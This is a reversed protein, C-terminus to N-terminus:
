RKGSKEEVRVGKVSDNKSYKTFDTTNVDDISSDDFILIEDIVDVISEISYQFLRTFQRCVTCTTIPLM